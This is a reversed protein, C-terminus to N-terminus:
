AEYEQVTFYTVTDEYSTLMAQLEPEVVAAYIDQGAFAQIIELSDWFSHVEISVIGAQERNLLYAKRFGQIRRVGPLRNQEFFQTYAEAGEVTATARWVRVVM